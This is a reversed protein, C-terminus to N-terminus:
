TPSSRKSTPESLDRAPAVVLTGRNVVGPYVTRWLDLGVHGLERVVPESVEAECDPALMAGAWQSAGDAFPRPSADLLRVGFGARALTLAQWLGLIGAGAVTV